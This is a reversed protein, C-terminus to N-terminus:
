TRSEFPHRPTKAGPRLDPNRRDACHEDYIEKTVWAVNIHSTALKFNDSLDKPHTKLILEGDYVIYHIDPHLHVIVEGRDGGLVYEVIAYEQGADPQQFTYIVEKFGDIKYYTCGPVRPFRKTRIM